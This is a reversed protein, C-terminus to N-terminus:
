DTRKQTWCENFLFDTMLRALHRNRGIFYHNLDPYVQLSFLHIQILHCCRTAEHTIVHVCGSCCSQVRFQIEAETLASILQASSSFHVNDDATGHILLLTRNRFHEIKNLVSAREYGSRNDDRGALGMFRESHTTDYFRRDTLPAGAIGCPFVNTENALAHLTLFGGYSWGWIASRSADVHPLKKYGGGIPVEVFEKTPLDKTALLERLAANDELVSLTNSAHDVLTYRPVDPGLCALVYFHGSASVRATVYQCQPGDIWGGVVARHYSHPVDTDNFVAYCILTSDPSWWHASPQLLIEEEYLWDTYGNFIQESQGTTTLRTAISDPASQTFLDNDYVFSQAYFKRDKHPIDPIQSHLFIEVKVKVVDRALLVFQLDDSVYFKSAGSKVFESAEMITQSTNTMVNYFVIDGSSANYTFGDVDVVFLM